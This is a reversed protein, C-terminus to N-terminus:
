DPKKLLSDFGKRNEQESPVKKKRKKKQSRTEDKLAQSTKLSASFGWKCHSKTRHQYQEPLLPQKRKMRAYSLLSQM